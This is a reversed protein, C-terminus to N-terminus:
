SLSRSTHSFLSLYVVFVEAESLTRLNFLFCLKGQAYGFPVFFLFSLHSTLLSYHSILCPM